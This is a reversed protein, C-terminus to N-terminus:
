DKTSTTPNPFKVYAKQVMQEEISVKREFGECKLSIFVHEKETSKCRIPELYM